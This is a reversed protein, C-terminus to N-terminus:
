RRALPCLCGVPAAHLQQAKALDHNRSLRALHTTLWAHLEATLLASLALCEAADNGNITREIDFSADIRRVAKLAVSYILGAHESRSKKRATSAVDAPEFFKRRAHAFCGAELAPAPIREPAYLEGYADAQLIGSWSALHAQPHDGGRDRSPHFLTAPPNAGAFGIM